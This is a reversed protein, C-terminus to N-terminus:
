SAGTARSRPAPPLLVRVTTGRGPATTVQLVGGHGRVIGRAAALGLGRGPFRRSFFPDFMRQRTEEDMGEGEDAVELFAYDGDPASEGPAVEAPQADARVLGTRVRVPGGRGGYSEVANRVLGTLLRRAQLVDLELKPLGGALRAEVAIGSEDRLEAIVSRVLASLDVRELVLRGAGSYVLMQQGLEAAKESARLIEDLHKAVRTGDPTEGRALTAALVIAQTLNNFDHAVGSALVALSEHKELEALSTLYRERERELRKRESIDRIAVVRGVRGGIEIRRASAEAEFTLGDKRRGVFEYPGPDDRAIRGLVEERSEPAVYEPISIALAEEESYGFLDLLASNVQIMRGQEHIGIAEFAAEALLRLRQESERLTAELARWESLDHLIMSTRQEGHGTEFVSTSIAVPFTSGDARRFRLEGRVKGHAEREALLGPLAPDTLDVVGARGAACIEAETMGLMECAAPNAAFIRGDPATLLVGDMSNEFLAKFTREGSPELMSGM